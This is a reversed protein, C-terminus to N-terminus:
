QDGRRGGMGGGGGRRGRRQTAETWSAMQEESLIAKLGDDLQTKYEQRVGRMAQFDGGAMVENRAATYDVNYTGVLDLAEDQKDGLNLGAVVQVMRDWEVSFTGLQAVATKTKEEGFGSLAKELKAIEAKAVEEQAERMAQFRARRDGEGADAMAAEMKERVATQYSERAVKYADVMTTTQEKSLDLSGAVHTAQLTWVASAEEPSMQPGGRGRMQAQAFAAFCLAAVIASIL